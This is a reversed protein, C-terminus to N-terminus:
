FWIGSGECLGGLVGLPSGAEVVLRLSGVADFAARGCHGAILPEAINLSLIVLSAFLLLRRAARLVVEPGGHVALHRTGLAGTM